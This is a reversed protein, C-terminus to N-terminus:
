SSQLDVVLDDIEKRTNSVRDCLKVFPLTCGPVADNAPVKATEYCM